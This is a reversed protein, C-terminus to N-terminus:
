GGIMKMWETFTVHEDLNKISLGKELLVIKLIEKEPTQSLSEYDLWINQRNVFFKLDSRRVLEILRQINGIEDSARNKLNILDHPLSAFFKESHVLEWVSFSLNKLKNCSSGSHFQTGILNLNEIQPLLRDLRHTISKNM